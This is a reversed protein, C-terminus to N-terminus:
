SATIGSVADLPISTDGIFVTPVGTEFTVKTVKGTQETGDADIYSVEHGIIQAAAQRMSLAFQESMTNTLNTMQEMQALQATQTMMQNSDMPSSPDQNSMQTIMLRLFMDKDMTQKPKSAEATAGFVTNNVTGVPPIATM